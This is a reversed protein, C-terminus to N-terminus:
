KTLPNIHHTSWKCVKEQNSDRQEHSRDKNNSTNMTSSKPRLFVRQYLPYTPSSQIYVVDEVSQVEFSSNVLKISIGNSPLELNIYM